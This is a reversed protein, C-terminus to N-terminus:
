HRDCVVRDVHRLTKLLFGIGLRSLLRARASTRARGGAFEMEAAGRYTNLEFQGAAFAGNTRWGRRGHPECRVWQWKAFDCTGSACYRRAPNHLEGPIRMVERARGGVSTDASVRLVPAGHPPLVTPDARRESSARVNYCKGLRVDGIGQVSGTDSRWSPASTPPFLVSPASGEAQRGAPAAQESPSQFQIRVCTGSAGRSERRDEARRAQPLWSVRKRGLSLRHCQWGAVSV